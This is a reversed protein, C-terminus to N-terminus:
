PKREEAGPPIAETMELIVLREGERLNVRNRLLAVAGKKTPSQYVLLPLLTEKVVKARVCFLKEVVLRDRRASM